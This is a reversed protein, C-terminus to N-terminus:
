GMGFGGFGQNGGMMGMMGGQYRNRRRGGYGRGYMGQGYGNMGMGQMGMGQMGMGQMGMGQGFGGFQADISQFSTAFLLLLVVTSIVMNKTM